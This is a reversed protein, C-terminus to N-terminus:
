HIRLPEIKMFALIKRAKAKEEASASDDKLLKNLQIYVSNMYKMAVKESFAFQGEEDTLFENDVQVTYYQSEAREVDGWTMNGVLGDKKPKKKM